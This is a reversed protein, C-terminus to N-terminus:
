FTGEAAAKEIIDRVAQDLADRDGSAFANTMDCAKNITHVGAARCKWAVLRLILMLGERRRGGIGGYAWPPPVFPTRAMAGRSFAM